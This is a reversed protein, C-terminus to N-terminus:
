VAIFIDDGETKVEYCRTKVSPDHACEGTKLNWQWFHWPCEVCDGTIEGEALPGGQHLCENDIAYFQGDLNALLIKRGGASVERMSGPPIESVRAAKFLDPM